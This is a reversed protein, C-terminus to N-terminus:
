ALILEVGNIIQDAEVYVERVRAENLKSWHIYLHDTYLKLVRVYGYSKLYHHVFDVNVGVRLANENNECVVMPEAKLLTDRAGQLAYAEWGEVDLYILDCVDFLALDDIRVMPIISDRQVLAYRAGEHGHTPSQVVDVRNRMGGVAARMPMINQEWANATLMRFNAYDPEFTYVAKFEQAMRKPFLGLNGGAQVAARRQPLLDMAIDLKLLDRRNSVICEPSGSIASWNWGYDRPVDKM